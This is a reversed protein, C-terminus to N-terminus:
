NNLMYMLEDFFGERDFGNDNALYSLKEIVFMMDDSSIGKSEMINLFKELSDKSIVM